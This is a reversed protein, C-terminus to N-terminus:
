NEYNNTIDSSERLKHFLDKARIYGNNLYWEVDHYYQIDITENISNLERFSVVKREGKDHIVHLKGM